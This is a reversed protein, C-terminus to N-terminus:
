ARGAPWAAKGVPLDDQTTAQYDRDGQLLLLPQALARAVAPPDYARLDLWYAPPVGYPLQNRPTALSLEPDQAARAQRRLLDVAARDAATMPPNLNTLYDLQRLIADPLPQTSGALIVLGAIGTAAVAIPPAVSGGQSHGLM